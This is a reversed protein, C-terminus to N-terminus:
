FDARLVRAFSSAKASLLSKKFFDPVEEQPLPCSYYFGQHVCCGLKQLLRSQAATEVGEAIVTMEFTQALNIMARVLEYSKGDKEMKQIFSMDIKMTDASFQRLYDLSSYGTGFDDISLQVGLNRLNELKPVTERANEMLATETVELKLSRPPMGTRELITKVRKFFGQQAFQKGSVNVSLILDEKIFGSKEWFLCAQELAFEGLLAIQNNEEAIPIFEGPSIVGHNNSKWRLLAEMGYFKETGIDIVPQFELFFEGSSVGQPIAKGLFLNRLFNQHIRADYMVISVDKMKKARMHAIAAQSLVKDVCKEPEGCFALGYAFEVEVDERDLCYPRCVADRVRRAYDMAERPRKSRFLVAFQDGGVRHATMGYESIRSLREAVSTLLEDGWRHGYAHNINAFRCIDFYLISMGGLHNKVQMEYIAKICQRRNGLQTLSDYHAEHELRNQAKKIETVDRGEFILSVIAGDKDRFPTLCFDIPHYLGEKDLAMIEKRITEGRWAKKMLNALKKRADQNNPWWPTEMFNRGVVEEENAGVFDLATQNIQVLCGDRDLLGSLQHTQNFIARFLLDSAKLAEENDKLGQIDFHVGVVRHPKGDAGWEITEGKGMFWRWSGEKTRMRFESELINRGGRELFKDVERTARCLDDPHLLRKLTDYSGELEDPQYGLMKCWTASFHAEGTMPYFDWVGANSTELAMTLWSQSEKLSLQAIKKDTIDQCFGEFVEEGSEDRAKRLSLSIWRKEGDAHKVELERGVVSGVHQLEESILFRDNPDVYIDVYVDRVREKMEEPSSYGFIDAMKQNLHLYRGDPMSSFIGVPANKVLAQVKRETESLKGTRERLKKRLWFGNLSILSIVFLGILLVIKLGHLTNKVMPPVYGLGMWEGTVAQIDEPPINELSKSLISFLVPYKKSVGLSLPFSVGMNGAVHLNTLAEDEIYYSAAAFSIVMADAEGFAVKRLGDRFGKVEVIEFFGENKERLLEESAFDNVVVVKKQRFDNLTKDEGFERKTVIVMPIEVYPVTFFAFESRSETRTVAATVVLVGEELQQLIQPWDNPQKRFSIGLQKELLAVIDAALGSYGGNKSLFEIPPFERDFNLVIEGSHDELWRKEVDTLPTALSVGPLM